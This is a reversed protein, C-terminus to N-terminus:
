KLDLLEFRGVKLLNERAREANSRINKDESNLGALLIPKAKEMPFYVYRDATVSDTMRALCEVVKAPYSELLENLTHLEMSFQAADSRTINLISLFADLRWNADLCPAELWFTFEKLEIPDAEQLRWEFFALIRARLEQKLEPTTNRLTRGVHDFLNAWYERHHSTKNYFASLLSEQGQLPYVDWLFYTFLHQGLADIIDRGPGKTNEFADLHELAFTFDEKLIEYIPLFPHTFQIFAKFAEVWVVLKEQPFLRSKNAVAWSHDLDWIQGFHLCLIAHEPLTLPLAVGDRIAQVLM